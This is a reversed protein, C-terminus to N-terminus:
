EYYSNKPNTIYTLQTQALSNKAVMNQPLHYLNSHADRDLLPRVLCRNRVPSCTFWATHHACAGATCVM